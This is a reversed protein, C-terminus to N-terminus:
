LDKEEFGVYHAMDFLLGDVTGCDLRGTEGNLLARIGKLIDLWADGSVGDSGIKADFHREYADAYPRGLASGSSAGRSPPGALQDHEPRLPPM